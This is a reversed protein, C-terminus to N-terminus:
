EKSIHGRNYEAWEEDTWNQSTTQCGMLLAALGIAIIVTKM